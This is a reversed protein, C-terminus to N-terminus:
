KVATALRDDPRRATGRSRSTTAPLLGPAPIAARIYHPSPTTDVFFSGFGDCPDPQREGSECRVVIGQATSVHASSQLAYHIDPGCPGARMLGQDLNGISYDPEFTM